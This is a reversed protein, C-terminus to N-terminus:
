LVASLHFLAAKGLALALRLAEEGLVLVSLDRECVNCKNISKDLAVFLVQMGFTM